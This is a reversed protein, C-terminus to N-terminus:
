FAGILKEGFPSKGAKLQKKSLLPLSWSLICSSSGDLSLKGEMDAMSPGFVV